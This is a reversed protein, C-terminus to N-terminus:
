VKRIMWSGDVYKKINLKHQEIFENVAQYVDPHFLESYDHGCIFGGLKIKPYWLDIDQKVSEYSHDGDVYVVNVSQNNFSKSGESSVLSHMKIKQLHYLRKNLIDRYMDIQPDICHLSEVYDFSAIILASEGIHTGIEVWHKAEPNIKYIDFILQILGTVQTGTLINWHPFFRVSLENMM